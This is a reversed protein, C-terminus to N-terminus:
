WGENMLNESCGRSEESKDPDAHAYANGDRMIM